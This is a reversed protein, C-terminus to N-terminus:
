WTVGYDKAILALDVIDVRKNLDIDAVAIWRGHEPHSGFAKAAWELDEMDVKFDFTVDSFHLTKFFRRNAIVHVSVDRVWGGPPFIWPGTGILCTLSKNYPNTVKYPLFIKYDRVGYGEQGPYSGPPIGAPEGYRTVNPNWIHKPLRYAYECIWDLMFLSTTNHYIEVQYKNVVKVDVLYRWMKHSGPHQVDKLYKLAFAIDDATFEVGDHWYVGPQLWLTTKMGKKVGLTENSWPELKWKRIKWPTKEGTWVNYEIGTWTGAFINVANGAGYMEYIPNLNSPQASAAVKLVGGPEPWRPGIFRAYWMQSDTCKPAIVGVLDPHWAETVLTSWCPIMPLQEALIEQVKHAAEMIETENISSVIIDLYHDATKNSFGVFNLEGPGIASSHFFIYLADPTAYWGWSIITIDFEFTQLCIDYWGAFDTPVLEVPLNVAELESAFREVWAVYDPWESCYVIRLPELDKGTLTNIRVGTEPNVTYGAQDLLWAALDPDYEYVPVNPNYWKGFAPSLHAHERQRLPGWVQAILEDYPILHAIAQRFRTDNTPSHRLNFWFGGEGPWAYQIIQFGHKQLTEYIDPREVDMSHIAGSLMAELQADPSPIYIWWWEDLSPGPFPLKTPPPEPLRIVKGRPPTSAQALQTSVGMVSVALLLCITLTLALSSVKVKVM